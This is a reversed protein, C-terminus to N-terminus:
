KFTKQESFRWAIWFFYSKKKRAVATGVETGVGLRVTNLSNKKETENMFIYAEEKNIM